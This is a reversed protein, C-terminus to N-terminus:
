FGTSNSRYQQHCEACTNQMQNLGARFSEFDEAKAATASQLAGDYFKGALEQYLDADANDFGDTRMLAVLAALVRMEREINLPDEKLRAETNVNAKVSKLTGDIRKMIDAVYVVDPNHVTEEPELDNVTGGDLVTVLKSYPEETAAYASRGTGNANMAVEYGLDRVFKARPKWDTEDSHETGIVGLATLIAGDLAIPEIAKNYTGVTQMNQGLRTRISKIEDLLMPMPLIQSWDVTATTVVNEVPAPEKPVSDEPSPDATEPPTNQTTPGVHRQDSAITLPDDYFVDYPITGIWRTEKRNVDVAVTQNDAKTGIESRSGSANTTMNENAPISQGDPSSCGWGIMAIMLLWTARCLSVSKQGPCQQLRVGPVDHSDTM